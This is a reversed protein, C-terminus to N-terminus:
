PFISRREINGLYRCREREENRKKESKKRISLRHKSFPHDNVNGHVQTTIKISLDLIYLTSIKIQERLIPCRERPVLRISLKFNLM